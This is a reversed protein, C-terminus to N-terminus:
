ECEYSKYFFSRIAKSLEKDKLYFINKAIVEKERKSNLVPLNNKKKYDAVKKVLGMRKEFLETLERDVEDIENRINDLENM